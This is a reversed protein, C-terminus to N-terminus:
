KEEIVAKEKEADIFKELEEQKMQDTLENAITEKVQGLPVLAEERKDNVKAIHFGFPTQFVESIQGVEMKFVVEEFEPVMQGRPFYGLDGANEPCDSNRGAVEEFNDKNRVEWLIQHMEEKVQDPDVEPSLHKVIHAARVMEPSTFREHNEDYVKQVQEDTPAAAKAAVQDSLKKVKMQDAIDSKIEGEQEPKLNMNEFYRDKGGNAELLEDYEKTVVEDTVDAVDRRAAQKFLVREVVNERSWEALQKEFEAKQEDTEGTFVKEYEPRLREIEGDIDKQEIKENNVYLTM